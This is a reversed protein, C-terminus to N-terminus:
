RTPPTLTPTPSPTPSPTPARTPSPPATTAPLAPALPPAATAEGRGPDEGIAPLAPTAPPAATAPPPPATSSPAPAPADTVRPPLAVEIPFPGIRVSSTWRGEGRRTRLIFYWSGDALPPSTTGTASGPLDGATDPLAAPDETWLVSYASAGPHASWAIRVVNDRALRGIEHSTSHVDPPDGFSMLGDGPSGVLAAAGVAAALAVAALVPAPHTLPVGPSLVAASTAHADVIAPTGTPAHQRSAVRSRLRERLEWSISVLAIGSFLEAPDAYRRAREQCGACRRVHDRIARRFEPRLDTALRVALLADLEACERRGRRLLLTFTVAEELSDRLRSLMTYVAGKRVGLAGALEDASLGKRLHLDLLSYEKPSLSAAARWVLEALEAREAAAEPSASPREDATILEAPIGDGNSGHLRHRDQRLRDIAGNRVTAYLWARVNQFSKGCRLEQLAATFSTQVVDGAAERDYLMRVALDYSGQMHREYILAFATDDGAVARAALEEDSATIAQAALAAM